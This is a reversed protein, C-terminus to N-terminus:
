NIEPTKIIRDTCEDKIITLSTDNLPTCKHVQPNTISLFALKLHKRITPNSFENFILSSLKQRPCCYLQAERLMLIWNAEKAHKQLLIM